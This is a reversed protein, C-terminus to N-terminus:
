SLDYKQNKNRNTKSMMLEHQGIIGIAWQLSWTAWFFQIEHFFGKKIWHMMDMNNYLM